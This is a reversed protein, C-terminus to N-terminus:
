IFRKLTHLIPTTDMKPSLDHRHYVGDYYIFISPVVEQSIKEREVFQHNLGM